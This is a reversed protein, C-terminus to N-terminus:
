HSRLWYLVNQNFEGPSEDHPCHGVNDLVILKMWPYQYIIQKGIILPVLKDQRGWLLLIPMKPAIKSLRDLLFPATFTRDRTAMGICM